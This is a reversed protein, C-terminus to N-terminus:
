RAVGAVTLWFSAEIIPVDTFVNQSRVADDFGRWNRASGPRLRVRELRGDAGLQVWTLSEGRGSEAWGLGAGPQAPVSLREGAVGDALDLVLRVSEDVEALMVQLRALADGAARVPVAPVREHYPAVPHDRRVDTDVGAARALPGVLALRRAQEDTLIGTAELRDVFSNTGLLADAV